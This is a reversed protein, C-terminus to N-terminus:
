AYSFDTATQGMIEPIGAVFRLDKSHVTVLPQGLGLNAFPSELPVNLNGSVLEPRAHFDGKFFLLNTGLNSFVTGVLPLEWPISIPFIAENCSLNCLQKNGQSVSITPHPNSRDWTFEALEKPLGWIERGGALSDPNDVYIHSIWAGFRGSYSVLGAVIILENYELVSGLSYSAAYVGGFTKGPWVSIIDLEPPILPRSREIDVLNLTQIASGLLTWPAQPYAM